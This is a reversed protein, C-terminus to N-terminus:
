GAGPAPALEPIADDSRLRQYALKTLDIWARPQKMDLCDIRYRPRVSDMWDAKYPQDGTGFDVLWVKDRDIVHEFLAATLTTGASLKQHSELHALKHIYAIGNDVTWFQAAIPGEDALALGFRLRGASSEHQAFERLMQPHDEDPKWSSAYIREYHEWAAPDFENLLHIEVKKAKRKLTSRLRGPRSAWYEAFTRGRVDLVHNLDCRSLEVRWGATRFACALREASGDESPVPELTVRHGRSKLQRAIEALLRDGQPGEPALQRWTFSYWNRLPTIRGENETLALAANSDSDTAIAILPTLGTQALLAYWEARDFPSPAPTRDAFLEQLVNVSDHYRAEIM